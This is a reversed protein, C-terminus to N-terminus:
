EPRRRQWYNPRRSHHAVAAIWIRDEFEVYFVTYPFRRVPAARTDRDSNPFTKPDQQIRTVAAELEARLEQGLGPREREYHALASRVEAAAATHFKVPKM